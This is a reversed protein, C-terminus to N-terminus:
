GASAAQGGRVSRHPQPCAGGAAAHGSGGGVRRHQSQAQRTRGPRVPHGRSTSRWLKQFESLIGGHYGSDRYRDNQGEWPIIAALHPPRRTAVRWQNHAYYSIGLMGVKGNSWPQTGAWEICLYLDDIERASNNDMVGPSWGARRALRRPDRRLWAAGLAGSRHGGLEPVQQDVGRPDGTTRSWRTGSTRIARRTRCARPTCAYTLIVPYRGDEVPRFVDARLVLGDDMAIPQHWTIRMGDRTETRAEVKADQVSTMVDGENSPRLTPLRARTDAHPLIAERANGVRRCMM